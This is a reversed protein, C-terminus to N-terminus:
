ITFQRFLDEVSLTTLEKNLKEGSTIKEKNLQLSNSFQKKIEKIVNADMMTKGDCYYVDM